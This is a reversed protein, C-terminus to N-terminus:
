ILHTFELEVKDIEARILKAEIHWMESIYAFKWKDLNFSDLWVKGIEEKFLKVRINSIRL